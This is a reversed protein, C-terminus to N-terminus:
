VKAGLCFLIAAVIGNTVECKGQHSPLHPVLGRKIGANESKPHALWVLTGENCDQLLITLQKLSGLM